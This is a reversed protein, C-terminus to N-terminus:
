NVIYALLNEGQIAQASSELGYMLLVHFVRARVFFKFGSNERQKSYQIELYSLYLSIILFIEHIWSFYIYFISFILGIPLNTM